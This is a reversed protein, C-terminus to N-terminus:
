CEDAGSLEMCCCKSASLRSHFTLCLVTYSGHLESQNNICFHSGVSHGCTPHSLLLPICLCIPPCNRSHVLTEIVEPQELLLAALSAASAGPVGIEFGDEGTYRCLM